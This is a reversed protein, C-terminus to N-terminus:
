EIRREDIPFKRLLTRDIEFKLIDSSSKVVRRPAALSNNPGVWGAALSLFPLFSPAYKSPEWPVYTGLSCWGPRRPALSPPVDISPLLTM